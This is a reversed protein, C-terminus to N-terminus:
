VNYKQKIAVAAASCVLMIGWCVGITIPDLFGGDMEVMEKADLERLGLSQLELNKM